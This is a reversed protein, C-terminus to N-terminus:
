TSRLKLEVELGLVALVDQLKDLRVGAKDHEVFRIFSPSVGALDAVEDQRLQLKRRREKVQQGLTPM